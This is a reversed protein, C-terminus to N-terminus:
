QHTSYLFVACKSELSGTEAVLFGGTNTIYGHANPLHWSTLLVQFQGLSPM